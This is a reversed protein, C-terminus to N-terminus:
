RSYSTVHRRLPCRFVYHLNFNYCVCIYHCALLVVYGIGCEILKRCM